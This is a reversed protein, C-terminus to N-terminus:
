PLPLDRFEFAVDRSVTRWEVLTLRAPKAGAVPPHFQVALTASRPDSSQSAVGAFRWVRGAADTLELRQSLSNQWDDDPAAATRTVTVDLCLLGDAETAANLTLDAARGRVTRGKATPVDDLVADPTVGALVAVPVVGRVTRVTTAAKDGRHLDISFVHVLARHGVAPPSYSTQEADAAPKLNLGRDDDAAHVTPQGVGVVAAKPEATLTFSLHLPGPGAPPLGRRPLGALPRHQGTHVDTATVKFPGAYSVFPDTADTPTLEIRGDDLVNAALKAADCVDAVAAWFPVRDRHLTVASGPILTPDFVLPYGSQRSLEAVVAATPRRDAHLTILTPTGLREAEITELLTTARRRVEPDASRVASTLPGVARPGATRLERAAAERDRFSGAGLRGIADTLAVSPAAVTLAVVVPWLM